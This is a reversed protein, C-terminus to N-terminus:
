PVEGVRIATGCKPCFRDGRELANGCNSCFNSEPAGSAGRRELVAAEIQEELAKSASDLFSTEGNAGSVGGTLLDLERLIGAGRILLESRQEGYDRAPIKGMAHDMDLDQLVNLIRDREAQLSSWRRDADTVAYGRNDILPRAIYGVVMIAIAVTVLLSGIEM